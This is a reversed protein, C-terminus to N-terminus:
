SAARERRLAQPHLPFVVSAKLGPPINHPRADDLCVTGGAREALTKVIALGLGSGYPETGVVRYFAEFVRDREAPPVGSGEDAVTFVASGAERRLDVDVRGGAPSYRVANDILNRMIAHLEAEDIPLQVEDIRGVGLDIRGSEAAPVLEELVRKLVMAASVPAVKGAATQQFRALTLLQDVLARARQVGEQLRQLKVRVPPALDADALAEAQLSLATLPSRLEHAADAVFRRQVEISTSLRALLRNIAATFPVIESPVRAPPLASLDPEIRRDLEQTLRSVPRLRQRVVYSLLLMLLPPLVVLPLVTRLAGHRAIEDRAETQQSVAVRQGNGLPGVLVRWREGAVSVTQLGDPLDVPLSLLKAHGPVVPAPGQGLVQVAIYLDPELAAPRVGTARLPGPPGQLQVLSAVQRLQDDQLENAERFSSGFSAYGAGLTLLVVVGTLWASLQFQLSDSLRAKAGDM